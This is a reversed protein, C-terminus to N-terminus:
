LQPPNYILKLNGPTQTRYFLRHDFPMDADRMAQRQFSHRDILFHHAATFGERRFGIKQFSAGEGWQRDVYTMIDGPSKETVFHRILKSLGGSISIGAKCCYRILEFSRQDEHLRNMKRGKSFSAIGVLEDRHYLGLNFASQTANMLHFCNLFEEAETKSVRRVECNRAFLRQNLHMRSFVFAAVKAPATIVYDLALFPEHGHTHFDFDEEALALDLQTDGKRFHLRGGSFKVSVAQLSLEAALERLYTEPKPM